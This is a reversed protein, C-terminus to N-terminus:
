SLGKISCPNNFVTLSINDIMSFPNGGYVRSVVHVNKVHLSRVKTSFTNRGCVRSVAQTKRHCKPEPYPKELVSIISKKRERLDYGQYQM